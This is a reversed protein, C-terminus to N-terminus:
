FGENFSPAHFGEKSPSILIFKEIVNTVATARGETPAGLPKQNAIDVMVEKTVGTTSVKDHPPLTGKFHNYFQLSDALGERRDSPKGQALHNRKTGAWLSDLKWLVEGPFSTM